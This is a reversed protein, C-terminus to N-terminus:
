ERLLFIICSVKVSIDCETFTFSSEASYSLHLSSLSTIEINTGPFLIFGMVSCKKTIGKIDADVITDVHGRTMRHSTVPGEESWCCSGWELVSFCHPHQGQLNVKLSKVRCNNRKIWGHLLM